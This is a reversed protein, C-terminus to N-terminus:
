RGRIAEWGVLRRNEEDYLRLRLCRLSGILTLPSVQLAPNARLCEELLYNPIRPNLHHLHHFGINGSFWQLIRPLKYFSAGYLAARQFSWRERREWYVGEFQHQVYFLWMGAASGLVLVSGQVLLWNKFGLLSILGAAVAVLCLNTWLVNRREAQGYGRRPFRLVVLFVLPALLPFLLLPQRMLRYGLRRLPPLELYERVTLTDIDGVGRRDLNGMYAHHTLHDRGWQRSPTFTLVGTVFGFFANARRSAFFSGHICDHFLIFVRVMLGATPVSLALTVWWPFRLSYIMLAWLAAYPVLTDAAQWLTRRLDPRQYPAVM